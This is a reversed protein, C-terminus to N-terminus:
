TSRFSPKASSEKIYFPKSQKVFEGRNIKCLSLSLVQEISSYEIIADNKSLYTSIDLINVVSYEKASDRQNLKYYNNNKCSILSISSKTNHLMADLAIIEVIQMNNGKALANATSVGIRIGTFSGPGVVASIYKFDELTAKAKQILEDLVSLIHISHRRAKEIEQKLLVGCYFIGVTMNDQSSDLLVINKNEM